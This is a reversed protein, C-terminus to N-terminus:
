IDLSPSQVVGPCGTGTDTVGVPSSEWMNLCFKRHIPKKGRGGPKAGTLLAQDM